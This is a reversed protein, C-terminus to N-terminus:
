LFYVENLRWSRSQTALAPEFLHQTPFPPFVSVLSSCDLFLAIEPCSEPEGELSM